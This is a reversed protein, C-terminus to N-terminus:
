NVLLSRETVAPHMRVQDFIVDITLIGTPGDFSREIRVGQALARIDSNLIFQVDELYSNAALETIKIVHLAADALQKSEAKVAELEPTTLIGPLTEAMRKILGDAGGNKFRARLAAPAFECWARRLHQDGSQNAADFAKTVSALATIGSMPLEEASKIAAEVQREAFALRQYDWGAAAKEDAQHQHMEVVRSRKLLAAWADRFAAWLEPKFAEKEAKIAAMKRAKAEGTIDHDMKLATERDTFALMTELATEINM